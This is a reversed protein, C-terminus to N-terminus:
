VQGGEFNIPKNIDSWTKIFAAIDEEPVKKNQNRRKRMMKPIGKAGDIRSKLIVRGQGRMAYYPITGITRGIIWPLSTVLLKLPYNKIVNWTLNRNSYYVSFDSDFGATGGQKHYVVASPVYRCEWGALRARFALDVDETYMFFDEDFLGIEDLMSKRYLAAGACPGFVAKPSSYQGEDQEFKGEGWVAGSRSICIGISNILDRRDYFFMKSACTGINENCEMPKVLKEIWDPNAVADTNITAIFAGTAKEIGRNNGGSFGLNEENVILKVSRFNEKVYGVSGDSSGNDVLIIELNPYTQDQLATLSEALLRKGNYNVMIASVKNMSDGRKEGRIAKIM